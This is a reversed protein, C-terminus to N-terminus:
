ADRDIQRETSLATCSGRHYHTRALHHGRRVPTAATPPSHFARLRESASVDV